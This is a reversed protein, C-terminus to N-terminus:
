ASRGYLSTLVFAILLHLVIVAPLGIAFAKNRIKHWFVLMGLFAGVSGGFVAMLFLTRERIRWRHHSARYKDIGMLAFSVINIVALYFYLIKM